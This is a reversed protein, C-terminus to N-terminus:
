ILTHTQDIETRPCCSFISDTQRKREAEIETELIFNQDISVRGCMQENLMEDREKDRVTHKM